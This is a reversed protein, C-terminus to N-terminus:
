GRGEEERHGKGGCCSSKEGGDPARCLSWRGRSKRVWPWHVGLGVDEVGGHRSTPVSVKLEMAAWCGEQARKRRRGLGLNGHGSRQGRRALARDREQDGRHASFNRGRATSSGPRASWQPLGMPRRERGMGEGAGSRGHIAALTSGIQAACGADTWLLLRSVGEIDREQRARRIAAAAVGEAASRGDPRAVRRRDACRKRATTL